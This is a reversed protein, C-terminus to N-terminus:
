RRPVFTSDAHLTLPFQVDNGNADLFRFRYKQHHYRERDYHREELRQKTKNVAPEGELHYGMIALVLAGPEEWTEITEEM